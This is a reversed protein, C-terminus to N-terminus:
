IRFLKIKQREQTIVNAWAREVANARSIIANYIAIVAIVLVLAIGIAIWTGTM